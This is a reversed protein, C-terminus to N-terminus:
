ELFRLHIIVYISFIKLFLKLSQDLMQIKNGIFKASGQVLVKLYSDSIEQEISLQGALVLM